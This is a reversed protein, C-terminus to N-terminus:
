GVPIIEIANIQPNEVNATFKIHLKGDTIEVNVTEIYAKLAGGAKKWVDFDKFEQGQVTFSFVREGPGTIGEYTECFHLKVQYKGNALPWSFGEMSYREARYIAQDKTGSVEADPREVTDGGDFGQDALWVNGASDTVPASAGAKIRIVKREVAAPASVPPAAVAPAVAVPTTNACPKESQCGAAFLAASALLCLNLHLRNM